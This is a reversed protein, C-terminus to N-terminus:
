FLNQDFAVKFFGNMEKCFQMKGNYLVDLQMTLQDQKDVKQEITRTYVCFGEKSIFSIYTKTKHYEYKKIIPSQVQDLRIKIRFIIRWKM